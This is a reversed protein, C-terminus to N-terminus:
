QYLDFYDKPRIDHTGPKLAQKIDTGTTEGFKHSATNIVLPKPFHIGASNLIMLITPRLRYRADTSIVLGIEGTQLEVLTGVPYIGMCQIFADVLREDYHTGKNNYLESIAADASMGDTYVRESNLADYVDTLSIIRTLMDIRDERIGHPYGSGDLREHHSLCTYRVETRVNEADHLIALGISVHRQVLKIEEDDLAGTKHLIHHPLKLEGIDHLLACHGLLELQDDDLGIHHGLKISLICSNLAHIISYQEKDRFQTMWEMAGPNRKISEVVEEVSHQLSDLDIAEHQRVHHFLISISDYLHRYTKKARVIESEFSVKAVPPQKFEQNGKIFPNPRDAQSFKPKSSLNIIGGAGSGSGGKEQLNGPPSIGKRASTHKSRAEAAYENNMSVKSRQRDVFVHRCVEQVRKIDGESDLLFGQVLFPSDLWPRDLECIHMGVKLNEVFVKEKNDDMVITM